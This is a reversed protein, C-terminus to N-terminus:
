LDTDPIEVFRSDYSPTFDKPSSYESLPILNIPQLSTIGQFVPANIVDSDFYGEKSAFVNYSMFPRENGPTLSLSSSKTPLAIKEAQGSANTKTTYLLYGNAFTSDGNGNKTERNEYINITAGEIPLAGNATRVIVSLFGINDNTNEM